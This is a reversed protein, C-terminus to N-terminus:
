KMLDRVSGWIRPYYSQLTPMVIQYKGGNSLELFVGYDIHQKAVLVWVREKPKYTFAALTQRANASQDKWRADRKMADEIQGAWFMLLQGIAMDIRAVYMATGLTWVQSPAKGPKWRFSGAV